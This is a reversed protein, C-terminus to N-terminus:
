DESGPRFGNQCHDAPFPRDDRCWERPYRAAQRSGSAPDCVDIRERGGFELVSFHTHHVELREDLDPGVDRNRRMAVNGCYQLFEDLYKTRADNGRGPGLSQPAPLHRGAL